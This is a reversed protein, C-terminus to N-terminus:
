VEPGSGTPDIRNKMDVNVYNVGFLIAATLESMFDAQAYTARTKVHWGHTKAIWIATKYPVGNIEGVDFAGSLAEPLGDTARRDKAEVAVVTVPLEGKVTFNRRIAALAGAAHEDLSMTPYYSAYVTVTADGEIGYNCSVDRGRQDYTSVGALDLLRKTGDENALNFSGPCELGSEKHVLKTGARKWGDPTVEYAVGAIQADAFRMDAKRGRAHFLRGTWLAAHKGEHARADGAPEAGAALLAAGQTAPEAVTIAHSSAAAALREAFSASDASVAGAFLPAGAIFAAIVRYQGM